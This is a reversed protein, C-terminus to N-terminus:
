GFVRHIASLALGFTLFQVFSTLAETRMWASISPVDYKAPETLSMYAGLFGGFAAAVLLGGLWTVEGGQWSQLAFSMILAQIIMTLFGLPMIIKDRLIGVSDYHAKNLVFHSTGQVAFTIVVFALVSLLHVIM